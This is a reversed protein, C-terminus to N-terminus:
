RHDGLTRLAADVLPRDRDHTLAARADAPALWVVRDVEDNCEFAGGLARAAWYRVRKLREGVPYRAEPLAAGLACDMGTEEKAERLAAEAASEGPKLKGKPHSWDDYRPRHILAIEVGPTRAAPRWLVVGAARIEPAASPSAM